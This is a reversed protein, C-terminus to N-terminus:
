CKKRVLFEVAHYTLTCKGAGDRPLAAFCRRLGAGESALSNVGTAQLHRFLDVPTDFTKIEVADKLELIDFDRELAQRLEDVSYLPLGHGTARYVESLNGDAFTSALLYGGPVLADSAHELFRKLSNFWQLTSASAILAAGRMSAIQLEADCVTFSDSLAEPLEAPAIDWLCLTSVTSLSPWSLIRRTLKGTGCGIELVTGQPLTRDLEHRRAMADLRDAIGTQFDAHSDYSARRRSFREGTLAKDIIYHDILRQFDPYHPGDIVRVPVAAWARRQNDPPIIADSASVVAFDWDAAPAGGDPLAAIADLEEGLSEIDRQPMVAAFQEMARAGGAMRRYFKTLSAPSLSKRTASFVASPIGSLDDVAKWTGNVALTRTRNAIRHMLIDAVKVGFSWAVVCVEAYDGAFSFDFDIDRYDWVVTIDYGNRRLSEFPRYDMGWGAFILILRRNGEAVIRRSQM